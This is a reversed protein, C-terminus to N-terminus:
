HAGGVEDAVVDGVGFAEAVDEFEKAIESIVELEGDEFALEGGLVEGGATAAEGLDNVVILVLDEEDVEARGGAAAVADDGGEAFRVCVDVGGANDDSKWQCLDNGHCRKRGGEGIAVEGVVEGSAHEVLEDVAGSEEVVFPNFGDEGFAGFGNFSFELVGTDIGAGAGEGLRLFGRGFVDAMGAGDGKGALLPADDGFHVEDLDGGAGDGRDIVLAAAGAFGRGTERRPWGVSGLEGDLAEDKAFIPVGTLFTDDPVGM